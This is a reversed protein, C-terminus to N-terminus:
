QAHISDKHAKLWEQYRKEDEKSARADKVHVDLSGQTEAIDKGYRGRIANFEKDSLDTTKRKGSILDGFIKASNIDPDKPKEPGLNSISKDILKGLGSAAGKVAGDKLIGLSKVIGKAAGMLVQNAFKKGKSIAKNDKEKQLINKYEQTMKLKKLYADMRDVSINSKAIKEISGTRLIRIEKKERVKERFTQKKIGNQIQKNQKAKVKKKKTNVKNRRAAGADTYTGDENQFRRVGWKQGKIGHHQLSDSCKVISYYENAM